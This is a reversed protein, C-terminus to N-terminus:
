KRGKHSKRHAKRSGKRHAKRSGKRHKRRASRGGGGMCQRGYSIQDLYHATGSNIERVSEPAYGYGAPFSVVARTDAMSADGGGTQAGPRVPPPCAGVTLSSYVKGLDNSTINFGYGGTGGGGGSQITPPMPAGSCGGNCAGGQQKRTQRHASRYGKHGGRRRRAGGVLSGPRAPFGCHSYDVRSEVPAMPGAPAFAAGTFGYGDGGRQSYRRHKRGHKHTRAM